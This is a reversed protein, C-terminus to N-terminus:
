LLGWGLLGAKSWHKILVKSYYNILTGSKLVFCLYCPTLCTVNQVGLGQCLLARCVRRVCLFRGPTQKELLFFLQVNARTAVEGGVGWQWKLPHKIAAHEATPPKSQEVKRHSCTHFESFYM